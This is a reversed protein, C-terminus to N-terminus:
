VAGLPSREGFDLASTALIREAATPNETGSM